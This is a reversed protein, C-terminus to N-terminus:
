EGDEIRVIFEGERQLNLRDRARLELFEKDTKLLRHEARLREVREQKGDSIRELRALEAELVEKRDLEPLFMRGVAVLILGYIFFEMVRSGVQWLNLRRPPGEGTEPFASTLGDQFEPDRAM